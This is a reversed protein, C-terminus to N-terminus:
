LLLGGAAPGQPGGVAAGGAGPQDSRFTSGEAGASGGADGSYKGM